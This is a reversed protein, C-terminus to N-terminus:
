RAFALKFSRGNKIADYYENAGGSPSGGPMAICTVDNFQFKVDVDNRSALAVADIFAKEIVTGRDIEVTLTLCSM